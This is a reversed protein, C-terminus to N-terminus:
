FLMLAAAFSRRWEEPDANQILWERGQEGRKARQEKGSQEATIVARSLDKPNGAEHLWGTEGDTVTEELAGARAAIVPRCAAYADYATLGLPEWWIAPAMLARCSRVLKAKEEGSVFGVCEIRKMKKAHLRLESELPGDGALILKPCNDGLEQELLRWAKILTLVGKEPVMRGLFLYYDGEVADTLPPINAVCHRLTTIKHAPIGAEIFRDRMFDSIALWHTICEFLGKKRALYLHWALIATKIRSGQWAGSIIEPWSNGHMAADVVKKGDWLTGSPSFPRFNHIYYLVPIGLSKAEEFLGFSGVPIVNHFLLIDPKFNAVRERLAARSAPNNGMLFIQKLPSPANEGVWDNSSFRLEDLEYSDGLLEAMGDVWIEEGGRFRYQSFIQLIRM